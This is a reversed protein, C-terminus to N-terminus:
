QKRWIVLFNNAPMAIRESDQFGHQQALCDLLTLDRIASQTDGSIEGRQLQADFRANGESTHVGDIMFPGYACFRGVSSLLAAVGEFVSEVASWSIIHLTNATYCVEAADIPWPKSEVDLEIPALLNSAKAESLWSRIGDIKDPLDSPQWTVDPRAEAFFSLHQGTGSGIELVRDNPLLCSDLAELIAHRNREASPAFPKEM